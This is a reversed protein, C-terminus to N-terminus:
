YEKIALMFIAKIKITENKIERIPELGTSMTFFIPVIVLLFRNM